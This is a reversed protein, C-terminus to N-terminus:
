AAESYKRCHELYAAEHSAVLSVISSWFWSPADLSKSRNRSLDKQWNKRTVVDMQRAHARGVVRALYRGVNVAENQTLSDFALKLDQPRLERVVVARDLLQAALMREGLSPSLHKAGEVVRAANNRPMTSQPYRPAAAAVAEKVDMLCLKTNKPKTGVALLVAFRLRGLSSCGKIWYAADLVEVGANDPRSRLITALQRIPEQGFLGDIKTREDRSLPWFADGLPITPKTDKIREQALQKWSRRVARNVVVRVAEPRGDPEDDPHLLASGYGEVMQEIMTVTAAGPLNSGRAAMALSLGLRILDHAPNGIVTQDLDRIQIEVRGKADSVPGLNSAHCDGCIWLPPGEPLSGRKQAELWEYFKLTSGRMYAHASAAMKHGRRQSLVPM